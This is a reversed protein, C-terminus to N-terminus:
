KITRAIVEGLLKASRCAEEATNACTGIEILLSSDTYQENFSSARLNIPRTINPCKQNLSNQLFLAFSLNESWNPHDAGNQDTGVVFMIQALAAGSSDYTVTKVMTGDSRLIADRHIDFVYKISPYKKLYEKITDKALEYAKIYSSEDHMIRCHITPIGHSTLENYLATGVSVVNESTDKSRPLDNELYSSVGAEAYGETGHTHLILVLPDTSSISTSGAFVANIDSDANRAELLAYLDPEYNTQNTMLLEGKKPNGSLDASVITYAGEIMQTQNGNQTYLKDYLSLAYPINGSSIKSLLDSVEYAASGEYDASLKPLEDGNIAFNDYYANPVSTSELKYAKSIWQSGYASFLLSLTTIGAVFARKETRTIRKFSSFKM